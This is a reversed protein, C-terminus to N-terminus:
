FGYRAPWELAAGGLEAACAKLEREFFQALHSRMSDSLELKKKGAKTNHGATLQGSAKEPDGGLFAIISRRMEVPNGKLDDFFYIRFLQPRVHRRWRAAVESPYSRAVVEPRLLNRRIEDIDNVEFPAILGRRVYMSLQSWAREVPDRALFIVKLDAFASVIEKILEDELISYGPTIDGSILGDKNEFLRGYNQLDIGPQACLRDIAELFQLDRQDRARERAVEMRQKPNRAFPLTRASGNEIGKLRDFYHLEKLPPMWFDPHMRLQEYLWGTGAKQAGICFFDPAAVGCVSSEKTAQEGSM